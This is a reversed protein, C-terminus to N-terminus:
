ASRHHSCQSNLKVQYAGKNGWDYFPSLLKPCPGHGPGTWGRRGKTVKTGKQEIAHQVRNTLCQTRGLTPNNRSKPQPQRSIWKNQMFHSLIDSFINVTNQPTTLIFSSPIHASKRNITSPRIPLPQHNPFRQKQESKRARFVGACHSFGRAGFNASLNNLTTLKRALILKDFERRFLPKVWLNNLTSCIKERACM